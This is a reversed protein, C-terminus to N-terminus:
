VAGDLAFLRDANRHAIRALSDDDLRPEGLQDALPGGGMDFPVDSGYVVRDAGVLDVLWRLARPHHTLSDYHFRRLYSSPLDRCAKAEPRVRHGHDLRGCQYPLHGGGHVLMLDLSPLEDLTGSLILRAASVATQWPNGLLNTLYFDALEPQAGVYYPHLLLPVGLDAAAALVPRLRPDDLQTGEIHPGIQAGRLGLETVARRLEVAAADPDQMPLTALASLRGDGDGVMRSLDDNVARAADTAEDGGVWYLFMPPAVSLVAATVGMADMHALRATVDHFHPPLPYRYGQRHVVWPAGAVDEVTIGDPADGARMAAVLGPPVVHAHTDVIRM